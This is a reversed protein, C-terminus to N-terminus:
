GNERSSLAFFALSAILLWKVYPFDNLIITVTGVLPFFGRVRGVVNKTQLWKIGRPYLGRDDVSNRDGKTLFEVVRGDENPAGDREHVSIVRHAIPIERDGINFVTIEGVRM